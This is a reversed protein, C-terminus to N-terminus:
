LRTRGDLAVVLDQLEDLVAPSYAELVYTQNWLGSSKVLRSSWRLLWGDNPPEIPAEANADSL